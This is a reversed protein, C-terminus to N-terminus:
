KIIDNEMWTFEKALIKKALKLNKSGHNLAAEKFCAEIRLRADAAFADALDVANTQGKKALHAAYACTASIAFLDTGIDVVRNLINQKSELKQQYKAMQHFTYRALRKSADKVYELHHNLPEPYEEGDNSFSPLWLKPYWTAYYGMM